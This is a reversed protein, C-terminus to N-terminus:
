HSNEGDVAAAGRDLARQNVARATRPQEIEADGADAPRRGDQPEVADIPCRLVTAVQARRGRRKEPLHAASQPTVERGSCDHVPDNMAALAKSARCEDVLSHRFSELAEAAQRGQVIRGRERCQLSGSLRKGVDRVQRDEVGREVARQGPPRALVRQGFGDAGAVANAPIAEVTHAVRVHHCLDRRSEGRDRLRKADDGAM